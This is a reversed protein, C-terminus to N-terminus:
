WLKEKGFVEDLIDELVGRPETDYAGTHKFKDMVLYVHERVGVRTMQKAVAESVATNLHRAATECKRKLETSCTYLQWQDATLFSEIRVTKVLNRM